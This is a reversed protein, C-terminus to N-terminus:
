PLPDFTPLPPRPVRLWCGLLLSSCGVRGRRRPRQSEAQEAMDQEAEQRNQRAVGVTLPPPSLPLQGCRRQLM